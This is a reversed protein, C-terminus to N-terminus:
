KTMVMEAAKDFVEDLMPSLEPKFSLMLPNIGFIVSADLAPVYVVQGSLEMIGGKADPVLHRISAGGLAIIVPPKLIEIERNLFGSCGNIQENTLGSGKPKPSKVLSTFYCDNANLMAGHLSEKTYDCGKGTFMKDKADETWNPSDTVVMIKPTKGMSIKPHGNCHLDCAKCSRYDVMVKAIMGKIADSSIIARDAKITEVILGPMLELQDRLRDPHRPAIEGPEILAFAGVRSLVDQHRKNVKTKNVLKLFHEKSEFNRGLTMNVVKM